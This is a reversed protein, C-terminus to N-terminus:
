TNKQKKFVFYLITTPVKTAYSKKNKFEGFNIKDLATKRYLRFSNTLDHQKIGLLCRALTNAVKSVFIRNFTTGEMRSGKVYRSGFITDYGNIQAFMQDIFIPDHSLDADMILIFEGESEKYGAVYATGIGRVDRQLLKIKYNGENQISRVIDVTGDNSGDDVIIIEHSEKVREHINIIAKGINERENLTPIIISINIKEM